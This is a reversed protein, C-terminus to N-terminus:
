MKQSQKTLTLFTEEFSIEARHLEIVIWNNTKSIQDLELRIDRNLPTRIEFRSVTEDDKGVYSYESIGAVRDLESEVEERKAKVEFIILNSEKAQEELENISGDAIIKGENIILIRESTASAEQLIHTSFIITKEKSLKKILNRIVIIQLPDLGSTPEDLILIKPDHILAQALGVRQKYGRSLEAVEQKMVGKLACAEIVWDIRESLQTKNLGRAQGCFKLYNYVRMDLYLPATEPLYGILKRVEIPNENVDIDNIFAKGSSSAIFTTLIRMVTTKGAGNPGLFGLLEKEKVRFSVNNVAIISGYRKTLNEVRIM